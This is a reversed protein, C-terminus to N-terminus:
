FTVQVIEFKMEIYMKCSTSNTLAPLNEQLVIIKLVMCLNMRLKGLASVIILTIGFLTDICARWQQLQNPCLFLEKMNTKSM